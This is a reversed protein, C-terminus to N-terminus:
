TIFSGDFDDIFTLFATQKEFVSAPMAEHFNRSSNIKSYKDLELFPGFGLCQL